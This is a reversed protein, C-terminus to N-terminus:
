RTDAAQWPRTKAWGSRSSIRTPRAKGSFCAPSLLQRAVPRLAALAGTRGREVAAARPHICKPWDGKALNKLAGHYAEPRRKLSNILTAGSPRFDLASITGGDDPAVLAAYNDSTFYIEDRGDADFDFTAAQRMIGSGSNWRDAIAEAEVLPRWVATRLHPSYLGGFIGHWFADNCQARM